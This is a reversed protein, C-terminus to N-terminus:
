ASSPMRSGRQDRPSPSTYLLCPFVGQYRGEYGYRTIAREFAAHLSELRDELIDDFRILLPLNLNRDQLGEVLEVLDLSGGREGRPQVSVHGRLNISFYPDGWRELGYLEASEQVNWDPSSSGASATAEPGQPNPDALVM